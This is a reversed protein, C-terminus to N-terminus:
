TTQSFIDFEGSSCGTGRVSAHVIVYDDEWPITVQASDDRLPADEPGYQAMLTGGQASGGDYGSMEFITPYQNGEVYNDPLRISVAIDAPPAGEHDVHVFTDPAAPSDPAAVLVLVAAILLAPILAALVRRGTPAM